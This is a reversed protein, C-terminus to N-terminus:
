LNKAIVQSESLNQNPNSSLAPRTQPRIASRKWCDESSICKNDRTRRVLGKVCECQPVCQLTCFVPGRFRLSRCTTPCASGCDNWVENEPCNKQASTVYILALVLICVIIAKMKHFNLNFKLNM